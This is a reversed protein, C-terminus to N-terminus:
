DDPLAAIQVDVGASRMTEALEGVWEVAARRPDEGEPHEYICWIFPGRYLTSDKVNGGRWLAAPEAFKRSESAAHDLIDQIGAAAGSRTMSGPGIMPRAIADAPILEVQMYNWPM